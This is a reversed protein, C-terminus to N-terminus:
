NISKYYFNLSLLILFISSIQHLSAIVINLDTILALIGLIIQIFIFIFLYFYPKYLNKKNFKKINFGIFILLFFIIYAVNRHIFQVVSRDNLNLFEKYNKFNVDDPYYTDNMLPWTQYIKGADLGSVFAGLIIQLFILFLFVKISIFNSNNTFFNKNSNTKFNFYNWTLSALIVFAIFLHASLRFHSVDVRDVLGSAVMYWGIFGQFCVLLFIIYLNKLKKFSIKFSFFILPLIIALGIIRGLFRHIWEWWFIIKFENITMSYNQLKFEPIDKYLNFYYTWDKENIPPIIGSFLQWQTISLGSDTLRTLGGVIIMLGILLILFILWNLFFKNYRNNSIINM